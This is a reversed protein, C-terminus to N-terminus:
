FSKGQPILNFELYSMLHTGPTHKRGESSGGAWFQTSAAEYFHHAYQNPTSQAKPSLPM